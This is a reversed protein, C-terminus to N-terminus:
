APLQPSGDIRALAAALRQQGVPSVEVGWDRQITHVTRAATEEASLGKALMSMARDAETDYEDEPFWVGGAGLGVVDTELFVSRIEQRRQKDEQNLEAEKGPWSWDWQWPWLLKRKPAEWSPISALMERAEGLVTELERVDFTVVPLEPIPDTLTFEADTVPDVIDPKSKWAWDSWTITNRGSTVRAGIGPCALDGCRCTYMAARGDSHEPDSRGMLRELQQDLSFGAWDPTLRTPLRDTGNGLIAEVLPEGDVVFDLYPLCVRESRNKSVYTEITMISPRLTLRNM